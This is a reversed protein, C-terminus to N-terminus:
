RSWTAARASAPRRWCRTCSPRTPSPARARAQRGRAGRGIGRGAAGRGRRRLRRVAGARVGRRGRRGAQPRRCRVEPAATAAAAIGGTAAGDSTARPAANATPRARTTAKARTTATVVTRRGAAGGRRRGRQATRSPRRRRAGAGRPEPLAARRRRRRRDRRGHACGRRRSARRPWPLRLAAGARSPRRGRCRRRGRAPCRWSPAARRGAGDGRPRGEARAAQAGAQRRKARARPNDTTPVDADTDAPVAPNSNMSATGDTRRGGCAPRDPDTLPFSTLDDGPPADAAARATIEDPVPAGTSRRDARADTPLSPTSPRRRTPQAGHARSPASAVGDAPTADAASDELVLSGQADLLSPQEPLAPWCGGASPAGEIPPLQDLSALGLDDLFQRTTAYLAPRGPAERYGIAEIWGRDELQKVIQSSVTVGRIDEIDGRTVPQRYAIIALTEMAARSYKPPKEPHLRDLYERMEPRSQFRWGRPWRSWNSAAARGTACATRRAARAAHRPRDRRRVAHAHRALPLPQTACILATELVRKAEQTNMAENSDAAPHTRGTDSSTRRDAQLPVAGVPKVHLACRRLSDDAPRMAGRTAARRTRCRGTPPHSRSPRTPWDRCAKGCTRRMTAALASARGRRRLARRRCTAWAAAFDAPPPANSACRARRRRTCSPWGRRTCRRARWASRRRAATCRTPSWRIGARPSTCASRTRAGPTCRAACRASATAAVAVREVDTRPRSGGGVVAM